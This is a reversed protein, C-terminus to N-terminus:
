RTFSYIKFLCDRPYLDVLNPDICGKLSEISMPNPTNRLANVMQMIWIPANFSNEAEKQKETRRNRSTQRTFLQM